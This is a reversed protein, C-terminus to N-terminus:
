MDKVLERCMKFINGFANARTPSLSAGIDSVSLFKKFSEELSENLIDEKKLGNFTELMIGAYGQGVLAEAYAQFEVVGNVEQAILYINSACGPVKHEAKMESEPFDTNDIAYELLVQIKETGSDLESLDSGLEELFDKAEQLTKM